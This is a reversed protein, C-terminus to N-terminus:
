QKFRKVLVKAIHEIEKLDVYTEDAHNFKSMPFREMLEDVYTMEEAVRAILSRQKLKLKAFRKETPKLSSPVLALKPMSKRSTLAIATNM